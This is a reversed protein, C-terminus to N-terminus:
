ADQSYLVHFKRQGYGDYVYIKEFIKEQKSFILKAIAGAEDKAVEAATTFPTFVGVLLIGPGLKASVKHMSAKDYKAEIVVHLASSFSEDPAVILRGSDPRHEVDDCVSSTLGIAHREDLFADTIEIWTNRGDIEVIAEPPDPRDLVNLSRGQAEVHAKFHQLVAEEHISKLERRNVM